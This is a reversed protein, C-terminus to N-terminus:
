REDVAEIQAQDAAIIISAIALASASLDHAERAALDGDGRAWIAAETLDRYTPQLALIHAIEIDELDGLVHRVDEPTATHSPDPTPKDTRAM